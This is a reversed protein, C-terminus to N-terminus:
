QADVFLTGFLVSYLIHKVIIPTIIILHLKEVYNLWHALSIHMFVLHTM